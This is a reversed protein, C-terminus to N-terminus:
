PGRRQTRSQEQRATPGQDQRSRNGETHLLTNSQSIDSPYCGSCRRKGKNLSHILLYISYIRLCPARTGGQNIYM